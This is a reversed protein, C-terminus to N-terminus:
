RKQPYIQYKKTIKSISVYFKSTSLINTKLKKIKILFTTKFSENSIQFRRTYKTIENMRLNLLVSRVHVRLIKSVTSSYM